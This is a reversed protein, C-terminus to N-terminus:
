KNDLLKFAADRAEKTITNGSLMRAIEELRGNENLEIISTCIKNNQFIKQVLYHCHGKSTVQPSHTVVMTQYTEGLKALRTGVANAVSGGIGSDIEDFIITRNHIVSELVVKIALLFRSLEGGSAVKNIPLMNNNFNTSALFTVKDVGLVSANENSVKEFNISLSANELKLQPLENNIKKTLMTSSKKRSESLTTSASIFKNKAEEYKNKLENIISNSNEIQNLSMKLNQKVQILDDVKCNHKRAEVRLENLRDEILELNNENHNLDLTEGNVINKLEEIDAKTGNIIEIASNMRDNEFSKLTELIKITQNILDELGNEQDIIDKTQAIADDIKNRNKLKKKNKNLDEEEGIQVDLFVLKDFSAKIWDNDKNDKIAKIEAEKISKVLDSMVIYADKTNKLLTNHNAFADLLSLHTKSNLLGRDEFQGQLEILNDTIEMLANRTILIDNILCKSRGDNKIERRIILEDDSSVNYKELVKTVPHKNNIEFTATVSAENENNRILSFDVRNGVILGISDLLISKGAGTEGTFVSLGHKFNINLSKILVINKVLLERLM